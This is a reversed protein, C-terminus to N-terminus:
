NPLLIAPKKPEPDKKKPPTKKPPTKKKGAPKKAAPKTPAKAILAWTANPADERTLEVMIPRFGDKALKIRRIEPDNQAFTITFPTVGLREGNELIMAGDPTSTLEIDIVEPKQPEPPAKVPETDAKALAVGADPADPAPQEPSKAIETSDGRPPEVAETPDGSSSSALVFGGIALVVFLVLAAIILNKDNSRPEPAPADPTSSASGSVNVAVGPATEQNSKAFDDATLELGAGWPISAPDIGRLAQAFEMADQYRENHDHATARELIPGLPSALLAPPIDFTRNVHILLTALPDEHVVLPQGTLCEILILGIQYVDLAASVRKDTVYEPAMYSPTGFFEGDRTARANGTREMHAIGFDVLCFSTHPSDPRRVFINEPKLDKHVIGKEHALGLGVLMAQFLDFFDRPDLAGREEILEQLSCGELFEMVMFLDGFEEIEGSDYIKVVCPHDISAALKAENKFRELLRRGKDSDHDTDSLAGHLIKIAVRRELNLDVGEFVVAFGGEGLLRTVEFRENIVFGAHIHEVISMHPDEHPSRTQIIRMM